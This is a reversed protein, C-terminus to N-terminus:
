NDIIVRAIFYDIKDTQPGRTETNLSVKYEDTGGFNILQARGDRVEVIGIFEMIFTTPTDIFVLEFNGDKLAVELGVQHNELAGNDMWILWKNTNPTQQKIKLTFGQSTVQHLTTNPSGNKIITVSLNKTSENYSISDLLDFNYIAM